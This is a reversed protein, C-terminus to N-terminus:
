SDWWIQGMKDTDIELLVTFRRIDSFISFSVNKEGLAPLIIGTIDQTKFRSQEAIQREDSHALYGSYGSYQCKPKHEWLHPELISPCLKSTILPRHQGTLVSWEEFGVRSVYRCHLLRNDGTRCGTWIVVQGPPACGRVPLGRFGGWRIVKTENGRQICRRSEQRSKMKELQGYKRWGFMKFSIKWVIENKLEKTKRWFKPPTPPGRRCVLFFAKGLLTAYTFYDLTACHGALSDNEVERQPLSPPGIGQHHLSLRFVFWILDAQSGWSRQAMPYLNVKLPLFTRQAPNKTVRTVSHNQKVTIKM